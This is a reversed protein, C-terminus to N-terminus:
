RKKIGSLTYWVNGAILVSSYTGCIVGVMIPLAFEKIDEVGFIYLSLVTLFTTFSTFLSRRLTQSVSNDILEQKTKYRRSNERVRDFVVISANISYGLITLIVAIFTTNMPIRLIAYCGIVILADHILAIVASSGTKFDRFRLTVYILMAICSVVVSLISARQMEASITGSVDQISFSDATISYKQMLADRLANRTETDLSKTKITVATGDAGVKQVTPSENGTVEKVIASIDNNDFESGITVDIATGGTFQVDYNFAGQGKSSNVGMFVFSTIIIVAAIGFFAFRNKVIPLVKAEKKAGGSYFAPNKLGAGHLTNLILRTVFIATFMSVIIGLSLTQAFGKVPGTGLWWLVVCAILTTINGDLIAPLARSFGNKISTKVTKGMNVEEKIREFIIVNADVAMGISLVIGAMGPLTLTIGFLSIFIVVIGTYIALAIDAAIGPIRYFLLMFVLVLFIGIMGAFLSTRLSDAGLRAGVESYDIVNLNFPLSGSRIRNALSTVEDLTFNGTIQAQGGTIESQVTPASVVMDDMYIYLPQGICKRTAEAFAKTGESDFELSVLYTDVGSSAPRADKVNTGDVLVNGQGDRFTLHATSGIDDVATQADDVGPIEVRIRNQQDGEISAEAETWNYYELRTQIMSVASAMEEETPNQKDAEYVIYVGGKLDLGQKINKASGANDKGVGFYSVAGLGAAVALILLLILVNKAKM